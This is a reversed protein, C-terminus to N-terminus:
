SSPLHHPDAAVDARGLDLGLIGEAGVRTAASPSAARTLVLLDQENTAWGPGEAWLGPLVRDVHLGAASAMAHLRALTYSIASAPAGPERVAVGDHGPLGHDFEYGPSISTGPGRYYDLVFCSFLCRGGRNLVRGSERFYNEAEAPLLHTFLSAAYIVDFSGDEFPFRYEAASAAGASNYLESHVDARVFEFNPWRATIRARADDLRRADVDLGVYRGPSRLYSLLGRAVRGHGCGLELVSDGRQLGAVITLYALYEWIWRAYHTISDDPNIWLARPPILSDEVPDIWTKPKDVPSEARVPGAALRASERRFRFGRM